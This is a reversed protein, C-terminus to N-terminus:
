RRYEQLLDSFKGSARLNRLGVSGDFFHVTGIVNDLRYPFWLPKVTIGEPTEWALEDPSKGGLEKAALADWDALTKKPFDAM